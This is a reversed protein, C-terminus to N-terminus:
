VSMLGVFMWYMLMNLFLVFFSSVFAILPLRMDRIKKYIYLILIVYLLLFPVYITVTIFIISSAAFSSVLVKFAYIYSRNIFVYMGIAFFISCIFLPLLFRLIFILINHLGLSVLTNQYPALIKDLITTLQMWLFFSIIGILIFITSLSLEKNENTSNM